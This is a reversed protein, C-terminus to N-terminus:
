KYEGPMIQWEAKEPPLLPLPSALSNEGPHLYEQWSHFVQMKCLRLWGTEWRGGMFWWSPVLENDWCWPCFDKVHCQVRQSSCVHCSAMRCKVPTDAGKVAQTLLKLSHGSIEIKKHATVQLPGMDLPLQVLHDTSKSSHKTTKIPKPFPFQSNRNGFM